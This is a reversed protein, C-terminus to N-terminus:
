YFPSGQVFVRHSFHFCLLSIFVRYINRLIDSKMRSSQRSSSSSFSKCVPSKCSLSCTLTNVEEYEPLVGNIRQSASCRASFCRVSGLVVIGREPQNKTRLCFVILLYLRHNVKYERAAQRVGPTGLYGPTYPAALRPTHLWTIECKLCVCVCGHVPPFCMLFISFRVLRALLLHPLVTHRLPHYSGGAVLRRRQVTASRLFCPRWGPSGVRCM